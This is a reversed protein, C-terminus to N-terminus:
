HKGNHQGTRKFMYEEAIWLKVWFKRQICRTLPRGPATTRVSIVESVSSNEQPRLLNAFKGGVQFNKNWVTEFIQSLGEPLLM